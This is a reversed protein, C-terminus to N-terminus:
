YVKACVCPIVAALSNRNVGKVNILVYKFIGSTFPFSDYEFHSIHDYPGNISISFNGM